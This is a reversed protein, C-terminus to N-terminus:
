IILHANGVPQMEQVTVCVDYTGRLGEYYAKKEQARTIADEITKDTRIFNRHQLKNDTTDRFTAKILYYM